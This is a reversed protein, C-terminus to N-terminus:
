GEDLGRVRDEVEDRATLMLVPMEGASRLRQCVEFGDLDPLMLDLIVMDPPEDRASELGANATLATRVAYGEYALARRLLSVIRADDDIVLVTRRQGESMHAGKSREGVLRVM